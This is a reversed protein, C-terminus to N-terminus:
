AAFGGSKQRDERVVPPWARVVGGDAGELNDRASQQPM